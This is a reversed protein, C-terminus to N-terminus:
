IEKVYSNIRPKLVDTIREVASNVVEMLLVIFILLILFIWETKKIGLVYALILIIIACISQIQLNQEEKLVKIFGRYAYVFSKALRKLKFM